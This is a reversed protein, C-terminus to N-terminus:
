YAEYLLVWFVNLAQSADFNRQYSVMWLMDEVSYKWHHSILLFKYVPDRSYSVLYMILQIVYPFLFTKHVITDIKRWRFLIRTKNWLDYQESMAM